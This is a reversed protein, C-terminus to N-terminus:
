GVSQSSLSRALSSALATLQGVGPISMLRRRCADSARFLSDDHRLAVLSNSGHRLLNSLDPAQWLCSLCTGAGNFVTLQVIPFLGDSGSPGVTLVAPFEAGPHPNPFDGQIGVLSVQDGAVLPTAGARDVVAGALLLWCTMVACLRAVWGAAPRSTALPAATAPKASRSM